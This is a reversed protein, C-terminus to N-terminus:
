FCKFGERNYGFYESMDNADNKMALHIWFSNRREYMILEALKNYNLVFSDSRCILFSAMKVMEQFDRCKIDAARGLLHYSNKAGGVAANVVKSRYGSNVIIPGFHGRLPELYMGCLLSLNERIRERKKGDKIGDLSNDYPQSTKTMEEVTFHETLKM